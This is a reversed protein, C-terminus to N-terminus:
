DGHPLRAMRLSTTSRLSDGPAGFDLATGERLIRAVRDTYSEGDREHHAGKHLILPFYQRYPTRGGKRARALVLHPARGIRASLPLVELSGLRSAIIATLLEPLRRMDQVVSLYGKPALRKAAIGIWDALPAESALATERGPDAARTRASRRFYPPNAMVHDFARSQLADPLSRLDATHVKFDLGNGTANRRALEAYDAQLEVGHLDLRPVRVALCLGAVGAGCGLELVSQGSDAPVSAALLVSDSGARYGKAPQAVTLHGDLFGDHTLDSEAFSV